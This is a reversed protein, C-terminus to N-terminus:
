RKSAEGCPLREFESVFRHGDWDMEFADFEYLGSERCLLECEDQVCHRSRSLGARGSRARRVNPRRLRCKWSMCCGGGGSMGAGIVGCGGSVLKVMPMFLLGWDRGERLRM